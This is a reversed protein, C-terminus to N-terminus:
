TAIKLLVLPSCCIMKLIRGKKERMIELSYNLLKSCIQILRVLSFNCCNKLWWMNMKSCSSYLRSPIWHSNMSKPRSKCAQIVRISPTPIFYCCSPSVITISWGKEGSCLLIGWTRLMHHHMIDVSLSFLTPEWIFSLSNSKKMLLTLYFHQGQLLNVDGKISNKEWIMNDHCDRDPFNQSGIRTEKLM